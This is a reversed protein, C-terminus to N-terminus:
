SSQLRQVRAHIEAQMRGPAWVSGVCQKMRPDARTCEEVWSIVEGGHKCLLDELPGAGVYNLDKGTGAGAVLSKIRGWAEQPRQDILKSLLRSARGFVPPDPRWELFWEEVFVADSMRPM